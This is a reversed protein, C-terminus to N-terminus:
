GANTLPYRTIVPFRTIVILQQHHYQYGTTYMKLNSAVNHNHDLNSFKSCLTSHHNQVYYNTLEKCWYM